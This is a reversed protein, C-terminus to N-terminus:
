GALEAREEPTMEAIIDRIMVREDMPYKVGCIDQYDEHGKGALVIMDGDRAQIICYRIAEKRDYVQTYEGGGRKVGTIIDDIIAQPEEHRPNDSTVVTLDALRSSFEGMEFRRDRARGGGCGFMCVLRKPKYEKLASLLNGLSMANHAYDIMLTFRPSIDVLEMRGKVSIKKLVEQIVAAPVNFHRVVAIAALANYVSFSGPISIEADFSMSGHVKCKVGLGGLESDIDIDTAYLDADPKTGFTELVCTHGKLVENMHVDDANAIGIRCTKFPLGKCRMYDAFDKHEGPGIHDPEINTFVMIEFTFGSVRHLMVGQSSVEMVVVKLGADAMKRFYSQLTYSEPTTNNASFAEDGLIVEITGILGTRIGAAELMDRIMYTTTTKGKTGTVGIVTLERAPHGFFAASMCALALRTDETFIVTVDEQLEVEKSVVVARAGQRVTQAAFEHGDSRFGEICVFVAGEDAERSDYALKTIETDPNGQLCTYEIEEILQSLRM